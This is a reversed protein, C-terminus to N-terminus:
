NQEENKWKMITTKKKFYALFSFISNWYLSSNNKHTFENLTRDCKPYINTIFNIRVTFYLPFSVPFLIISFSPAPPYVLKNKGEQGEWFWVAALSDALGFWCQHMQAELWQPSGACAGATAVFEQRTVDRLHRFVRETNTRGQKETFLLKFLLHFYM